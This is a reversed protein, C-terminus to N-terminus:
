FFLFSNALIFDKPNVVSFSPWINVGKFVAVSGAPSAEGTDLNRVVSKHNLNRHKGLGPFSSTPSLNDQATM